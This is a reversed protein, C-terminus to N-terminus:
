FRAYKKRLHDGILSSLTNLIFTFAFLLLATLFLVRYLTGGVPAEPIEVAINASMARFGNFPSWDIIPTNGTAMLVIMTEGVARGLGLMIAAFIGGSAAPLIIKRVTQWPSAGLALAASSLSKPVNSLADESVTFIIPIVAFGLAFGVFLSNRTEYTVGFKTYLWQQFNGEFLLKEVSAETGQSVWLAVVVFLALFILETGGPLKTRISNPILQWVVIAVAFIIPLWFLFLIVTMLHDEFFPSFYLGALFGIVVSPLAAMIEVTPKIIRALRVPAFQSVYIAALIALPISFFMAYITGKFTGFILPILSLKPEFEDSGGTSQWVFEAKPYGEYWVKGFLTKLSAEPHPNDLHYLAFRQQQDVVTIANSKPSFTAASVPYDGAQFGLQTKGTTSYHLKIGGAIDYTLFNRNRPSVVVGSVAKDHSSFEHVKVFKFINSPSRVSFSVSVAGDADAVVMSQDGILYQLATIQNFGGRWEDKLSVSEYNSVDYWQLMGNTYGVILNEGNNSFTMASIQANASPKIFNHLEYESEEDADYVKLMVQGSQDMVAWFRWMDENQSFALGKIQVSSSDSTEKLTWVSHVALNPIIQRRNGQYDQVMNIEATVVKGSDTGVAFIESSLSGKVATLIREHKGLGIDASDLLAMNGTDYFRVIGDEDLMYVVELYSDVGSLLVRKKVVPSITYILSSISADKALPLSQYVLFLMIALISLIIGYGGMKIFRGAWRDARHVKRYYMDRNQHDTM